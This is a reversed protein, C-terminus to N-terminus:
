GRVPKAPVLYRDFVPLIRGIHRCILEYRRIEHRELYHLISALNGSDSRLRYNDDVDWMRKISPSVSTDHFQYATCNRLLKVIVSAMTQNKGSIHSQAAEVIRAERHGSEPSTWGAEGGLSYRSFRFEESSFLFRDPSGYALAFRYDNLGSDTGLRIEAQMRPTFRNGRYLQDDAGGQREIFEELQRSKLMWSLMDFFRIFNSKGSGNAGILVQADAVDLLEVDKLSRFGRIRVSEIRAPRDARQM